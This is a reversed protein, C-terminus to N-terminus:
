RRHQARFVTPSAGTHARFLNAFHQPTTFGLDLAITTVSTDTNALREQAAELRARQVEAHFSTGHETLRRQLTRSALHLERAVDGLSPHLLETALYARVGRIVEPEGSVAARARALAALCAEKDARGLHALALAGTKWLTVPFPRATVDFFGSVIAGSVGQPHVIATRTVVRRLAEEHTVTYTALAEFAEPAVIELDAFDVFADHPPRDLELELVRVLAQVDGPAPRGWIAYGFLSDDVAFYLWREGALYGGLPDRRFASPSRPELM